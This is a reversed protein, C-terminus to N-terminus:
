EVPVISPGSSYGLSGRGDICRVTYMGVGGSRVVPISNSDATSAMQSPTLPFKDTQGNTFFKVLQTGLGLVSNGVSQRGLSRRIVCPRSDFPVCGFWGWGRVIRDQAANCKDM